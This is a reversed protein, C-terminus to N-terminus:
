TKDGWGGVDASVPIPFTTVQAIDPRLRQIMDMVVRRSPPLPDCLRKGDAYVAVKGAFREALQEREAIFARLDCEPIPASSPAEPAPAKRTVDGSRPM